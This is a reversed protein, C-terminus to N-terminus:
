AIMMSVQLSSVTVLYAAMEGVEEMCDCADQCYCSGDDEWWDIAHLEGGYEAICAEFCEVASSFDGAYEDVGGACWGVGQAVTYSYSYSYSDLRRSDSLRRATRGSAEDESNKWLQRTLEAVQLKLAHNERAYEAVLVDKTSRISAGVQPSSATPEEHVENQQAAGGGGDGGQDTGGVGVATLSALVFLLVLMFATAGLDSACRRSRRQWESVALVALLIPGSAHPWTAVIPKIREATPIADADDGDSQGDTSYRPTHTRTRTRTHTRTRSSVLWRAGALM